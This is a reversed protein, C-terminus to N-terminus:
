SRRDRRHASWARSSRRRWGATSSRGTRRSTPTPPPRTTPRGSARRRDRVDRARQQFSRHRHRGDLRARDARVQALLPVKRWRRRPRGQAPAGEMEQRRRHDPLGRGGQDLSRDHQGHADGPARRRAVLGGYGFKDDGKPAAPTIDTFKEAKPEYKWVAGDSIDNPGPGNAYSLYLAGTSDFEAHSVMVGTPQKPVLKWTAGADSSRYLSGDNNAVAAYIVPTAKGKAAARRTSCSSRSGSGRTTTRPPSAASRRGPPRRTRARGCVRGQAVRLLPHSPQNPDIALREGMSRGNENGGMKVPMDITQWTNGRDNSRLIAGNGVWSGTYTGAALYVKNADVPDAALSEIGLFNSDRGLQDTLPVWAKGAADWRYAGGVDTRAYVLEKEVPSFVIGSVFGGGLIVVNKWNYAVSGKLGGGM